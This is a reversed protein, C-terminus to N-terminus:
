IVIWSSTDWIVSLQEGPNVVSISTSTEDRVDISNSAGRNIFLHKRFTTTGGDYLTVDRDSGNADLSFIEPSDTTLTLNGTLDERDGSTVNTPTGSGGSGGSGGSVKVWRGATVDSAISNPRIFSIDDSTASSVSDWTWVEYTDPASAQVLHSQNQDLTTHVKAKLVSYSSIPEKWFGSTNQLETISGSLDSLSVSFEPIVGDSEKHSISTVSNGLYIFGVAVTYNVSGSTTATVLSPASPSWLGFSTSKVSSVVTGTSWSVTFIDSTTNTPALGVFKRIESGDSIFLAVEEANFTGKNSGSIVDDYISDITSPYTVTVSFDPSSDATISSSFPGTISEGSITGVLARLDENSELTSDNLYVSGNNNIVIQQNATNNLLGPVVNSGIDKFFFGGVTGSGEDAFVSLGSSPYVRRLNLNEPLISNGIFASADNYSGAEDFFFGLVSINTGNLPLSQLEYSNFQPYVTIQFAHNPLLPKQLVLDTRGFQYDRIIGIGEMPTVTDALTIDLVGTSPDVYGNFIVKILSEFQESAPEGNVSVTLGVRTGQGITETSLNRIWFVRSPGASGNLSYSKTLIASSNVIDLVNLNAGNTDEITNGVYSTFGDFTYEWNGTGASIVTTGNDPLTSTPVYRYVLGTSTLLRLMGPIRDSGTPFAAVSAEPLLHADRTLDFTHPLTIDSKNLNILVVSTVPDDVTNVSLSYQLINEGSRLCDGPFVIRIGQGATYSITTTDSVLNYGLDNRGQLYFYLTGSTTTSGSITSAQPPCIKERM